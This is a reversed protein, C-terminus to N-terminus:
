KPVVLFGWELKM